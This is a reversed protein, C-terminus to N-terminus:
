PEGDQATPQVCPKRRAFAASARSVNDSAAGVIVNAAALEQVLTLGRWLPTRPVDADIPSCHPAASGRRDQLGLNTMPNCVVSVADLAALGRIVAAKTADSQLTLSTCHGLLVPHAYGGARARTLADVLPMLACCGPDNTEDIHLDVQLGHAQAYGFLADFAAATEHVPTGNVNGCYAGLLVGEHRVAEAVHQEALARNTWLPLYLNAVGQMHMGKAAWRARCADFAAYVAARLKPDPSNTGDLHTRLARTGHHYASAAAFEMRREVDNEAPPPGPPPSGAGFTVPGCCACSLWRPQDDVETALADNISGTPNRARPHTHTKVMHTHADTWCAVLVCGGCDVGASKNEAPGVDAIKGDAVTVDCHVLGEEDATLRGIASLPLLGCPVRVNKLTFSAAALQLRLRLIAHRRSLFRGLAVGAAVGAVCFVGVRLMSQRVSVSPSYCVSDKLSPPFANLSTCRKAVSPPTDM